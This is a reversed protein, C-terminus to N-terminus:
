KSQCGKLWLAFAAVSEVLDAKGAHKEIEKVISSGVIAADAEQWVARVHEPRSIGFGVAIPSSTHSRLTQLFDKLDGALDQQEGTVGTRSVAYLFGNSVKAISKMREPSSTPAALFITNLGASRMIRIFDDSEEVTLDSALVGDFGSKVADHALRELGYNLLPNFYSFLVLPIESRKRINAALQLVDKLRVGNGLARDSARQIVPGDAIPDSFPVGVEIIDAGSAELAHILELTVELSPDGATIYPIFGKRDESKLQAFKRDIRSM